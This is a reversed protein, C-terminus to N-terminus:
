EEVQEYFPVPTAPVWGPRDPADRHHRVTKGATVFVKAGRRILANTVKKAPHKPAGDEAASIFATRAKIRNLITPGVNRKSGHHSVQSFNTGGLDIGSAQAFDAAVTLAPIGADGTFLLREGDVSLLLIASSNNEASTEGSDDLTEIGMTEAVWGVGKRLGELAKALIAAPEVKPEPTCRFNPLLSEYYAKTPALVQFTGDKTAAGAFPEVIPIKKSAALKELECADGLAKELKTELGASTLRGNRFLSRIEDAHEWPRHMLLVGVEMQELVETLGSAHDSDPHTCVVIDARNTGYYSRVHRVLAQGSEKTGGDIIVVTQGNPQGNLNGFRISIADGSREGGGVPLFDVEYGM